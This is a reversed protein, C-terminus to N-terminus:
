PSPNEEQPTSSSEVTVPIRQHITQQVFSRPQADLYPLIEKKDWIHNGSTLVDVGWCLLEDAIKPTVGFGAAANECNSITFDIAYEEQISKLHERLVERGARAVIDGIFLINM